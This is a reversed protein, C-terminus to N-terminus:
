ARRQNLATLGLCATPSKEAESHDDEGLLGGIAYGAHGLDRVYFNLYRTGKATHGNTVKLQVPGLREWNAREVGPEQAQYHFGGTKIADAWKGTINLEQFYIEACQGGMAKAVADVRLLTTKEINRPIEMLLHKGAQMLDFREGHVNTLHPDGVASAGTPPTPSPTPSPTPCLSQAPTPGQVFVAFGADQSITFSLVSGASAAKQYVPWQGNYFNTDCVGQAHSWIDGVNTIHSFGQAVLELVSPQMFVADDVPSEARNCRLMVFVSSQDTVTFGFPGTKHWNMQILSSEALIAPLNTPVARGTRDSWFETGPCLAVVSKGACLGTLDIVIAANKQREDMHMLTDSERTLADADDPESSASLLLANVSATFLM